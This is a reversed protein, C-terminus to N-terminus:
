AASRESESLVKRMVRVLDNAEVPKAIYSNMGAQLFREEEGPMAYATMAIIPTGAVHQYEPEHRIARTTDMGDMEPMQIDMFILDFPGSDSALIDLARRGNEAPVVEHGGKELLRVGYLMSVADDEVMLIRLRRDPDVEQEGADSGSRPEAQMTDSVVFPLSVYFTTGEEGNDVSIAGGMLQVLRRVITLGLGAGQYKRADGGEGQTFPDFLTDLVEDTIGIGTDTVSFLLGCSLAHHNPLRMVHVQIGGQETFKIANGVLNFLIQQLRVADGMIVAPVDQDIDFTFELGKERAPMAFIDMVSSRQEEVRFATEELALRGAEMSSLDLIDSLLRALRRSSNISTRVYEQQESDLVTTEMLHMMGMMGNLPTRIEHSINALFESKALNSSDAILKAQRLAEEMRKYDTLDFAMSMVARRGAMFTELSVSYFYWVRKSGDKCLINFEGEDRRVGSVFLTEIHQKVLEMRSGYAKKTWQAITPIEAHTYGTIETWARSIMLVKGDETHIMIPFPAEQLARRFRAESQVLADETRERQLEAMKRETVDLLTFLFDDEAMSKQVTMDMYAVRGDLRLFRIEHRLAQGPELGNLIEMGLLSADEEHLLEELDYDELSEAGFGLKARFERNVDVIRGQRDVVMLGLTISDVVDRIREHFVSRACGSVPMFREAPKLRFFLIGLCGLGAVLLVGGPLLAYEPRSLTDAVAPPLWGAMSALLAGCYASAVAMGAACLSLIAARAAGPM